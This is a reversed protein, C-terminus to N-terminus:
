YNRQVVYKHLRIRRVLELVPTYGDHTEKHRRNMEARTLSKINTEVISQDVKRAAKAAEAEAVSKKLCLSSPFASRRRCFGSSCYMAVTHVGLM